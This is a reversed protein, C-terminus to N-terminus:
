FLACTSGPHLSQWFRSARIRRVPQATKAVFMGRTDSRYPAPRPIALRGECRLPELLSAELTVASHYGSASVLGVIEPNFAGFPYALSRCPRDLASECAERSQRLEAAIRYSNLETLNPHSCTHSGIEWGACSLERLENWTMCTLEHEHPTGTWKPLDSWSAHSGGATFDTPVFVTGPVGLRSMIPLGHTLVSRYADDFSVVLTKGTRSTDMAATLTKPQYGRRLLFGLQRALRAPPIAAELPWTESVAHYCLVLLSSGVPSGADRSDSNM